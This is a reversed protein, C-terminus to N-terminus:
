IKKLEKDSTKLMKSQSIVKVLEKKQSVSLIM